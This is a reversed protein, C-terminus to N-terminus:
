AARGLYFDVTYQLDPDSKAVGERVMWNLYDRPVESWPQGKHKKFNCIKLLVPKNTLRILEDVSHEDLMRKLIAGTVAADYRARHPDLGVLMERPPEVELWYRLTQNKHNPADPWIHRSCQRTCIWPLTLEPLFKKDFQANHAAYVMDPKEFKLLRRVLEERSLCGPSGVKVLEPAIHHVARAEPPIIGDFEVYNAFSQGTFFWGERDGTDEMNLLVVGVELVAAGDDPELGTTETDIVAV